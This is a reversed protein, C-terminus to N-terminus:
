GTSAAQAVLANPDRTTTETTDSGGPRPAHGSVGLEREARMDKLMAKMLWGSSPRRAAVPEKRGRIFRTAGKPADHDKPCRRSRGTGHCNESRQPWTKSRPAAMGGARAQRRTDASTMSFKTASVSAAAS